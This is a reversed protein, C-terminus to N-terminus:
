QSQVRTVTKRRERWRQTKANRQCTARCYKAPHGRDNGDAIRQAPIPKGCRACAIAPGVSEYGDWHEDADIAQKRFNRRLNM